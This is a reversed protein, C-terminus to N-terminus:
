LPSLSCSGVSGHLPWLCPCSSCLWALLFMPLFCSAQFSHLSAVSSSKPTHLKLSFVASTPELATGVSVVAKPWGAWLWCGPGFHHSGCCHLPFFANKM